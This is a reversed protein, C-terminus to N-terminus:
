SVFNSLSFNILISSVFFHVDLIFFSLMIKKFFITHLYFFHFHIQAPPPAPPSRRRGRRRVRREGGGGSGGSGAAGRRRRVRREGGRGAAAPGALRAPGAARGATARAAGRAVPGETGAAGGAAPKSTGGCKGGGAAHLLFPPLSCRWSLVPDLHLHLLFTFQSTSHLPSASYFRTPGVCTPSFISQSKGM